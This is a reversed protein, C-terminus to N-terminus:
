VTEYKYAMSILSDINNQLSSIYLNTTSSTLYRKNSYDLLNLLYEDDNDNNKLFNNLNTKINLSGDIEYYNFLALYYLSDESQFESALKFFYFAKKLNISVGLGFMNMKAYLYLFNGYDSENKIEKIESFYKTLLNLENNKDGGELLNAEM